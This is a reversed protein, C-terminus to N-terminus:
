GGIRAQMLQHFFADLQVVIRCALMCVYDIM